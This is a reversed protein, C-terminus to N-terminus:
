YTISLHEARIGKLGFSCTPGLSTQGCDMSFSSHFLGKHSIPWIAPIMLLGPKFIKVFTIVVEDQVLAHFSAIISDAIVLLFFNRGVSRQRAM